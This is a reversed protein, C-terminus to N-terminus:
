SGVKLLYSHKPFLYGKCLNAQYIKGSTRRNLSAYFASMPKETRHVMKYMVPRVVVPTSQASKSTRASSPRSQRPEFSALVAHPRCLISPYKESCRCVEAWKKLVRQRYPGHLHPTASHYCGVAKSWSAYQTQLEKLFKAAYSINQTIDFAEQLSRFAKQHHLLNVQMCGVDINRAGRAQFRKVAAIAASKTPFYHGKGNVTV